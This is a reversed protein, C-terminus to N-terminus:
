VMLYANRLHTHMTNKKGHLWKLIGDGRVDFVVPKGAFVVQLGGTWPPFSAGSSVSFGQIGSIPIRIPNRLLEVAGVSASENENSEGSKTFGTNAM